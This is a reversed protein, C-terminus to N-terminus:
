LAKSCTKEISHNIFDKIVAVGTLNALPQTGDNEIIFDAYRVTPKIHQQYAPKVQSRYQQLIKELSYGREGIDRTIRRILAEDMDCKIFIKLDLLNNIDANVFAQIGEYIMVPAPNILEVNEIQEYNAYDHRPTWQPKGEKWGRITSAIKEYDFSEPADWNHTPGTGKDALAKYFWDQCIIPIHCGASDSLLRAFSTKGSASAGAIGIFYTRSM